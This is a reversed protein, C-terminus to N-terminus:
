IYIYLWYWLFVVPIYGYLKPKEAFEHSFGSFGAIFWWSGMMKAELHLVVIKRPLGTSGIELCLFITSIYKQRSPRQFRGSSPLMQIASWDLRCRSRWLPDFSFMLLCLSSPRFSSKAKVGSKNVENLSLVLIHKQTSTRLLFVYWLLGIAFFHLSLGLGYM